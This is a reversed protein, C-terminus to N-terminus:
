TGGVLLRRGSRWPEALGSRVRNVKLEEAFPQYDLADELIASAISNTVRLHYKGAPLPPTGTFIRTTTLDYRPDWTYCVGEVVYPGGLPGSLIEILMPDEFETGIIQIVDGGLIDVLQGGNPSLGEPSIVADITPAAVAADGVGGWPNGDIGGWDGVGWGFIPM